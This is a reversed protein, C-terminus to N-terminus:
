EDAGHWASLPGRSLRRGAGAGGDGRGCTRRDEVRGTRRWIQDDEEPMGPLTRRGAQRGEQIQGARRLDQSVQACGHSRQLIEAGERRAARREQGTGFAGSGYGGVVAGAYCIAYRDGREAFRSSTIM